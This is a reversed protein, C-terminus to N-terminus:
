VIGSLEEETFGKFFIEPRLDLQLEKKASDIIKRIVALYDSATATGTNEIFAAHKTSIQAGGVMFGQLHLEHELIYGISPTHFGLRQQEANSINQFVCGLSNQPQVKKRIAWEKAVAQALETNGKYLLFTATLIIENSTHFRSTDYDMQLESVPLVQITNKETLVTVSQLIESIFHTGGHVNNYIAGGITAPIRAYWQLGTIGQGILSNIAMPLAVGADLTVLVREAQSEDFELDNFDYKFSGAKKNTEWRATLVPAVPIASPVEPHITIGQCDNKIVLGRIGRDAILTNAGWGLVTLPISEAHAFICLEKFLEIDRVKCFVEAPGGIGVTTYKKLPEEALFSLQPFQQTLKKYISM